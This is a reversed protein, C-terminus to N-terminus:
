LNREEPPLSAMAEEVSGIEDALRKRVSRLASIVDGSAGARRAALIARLLGDWEGVLKWRRVELAALVLRNPTPAEVIRWEGGFRCPRALGHDGKNWRRRGGGSCGRGREFAAAAKKANTITSCSGGYGPGMTRTRFFEEQGGGARVLIYRSMTLDGGNM